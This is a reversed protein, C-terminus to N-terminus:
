SRVAVMSIEVRAGLPLEKVCVVERAPYPETMYSGYVENIKGYVSMDTVYITTKVVDAFTVGAETLIAELNKMVQHVQTEIDGEVLKLNPTLHIQGATFVFNGAAIAHSFPGTTKPANTAVIKQKM